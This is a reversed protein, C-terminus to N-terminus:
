QNHRSGPVYKERDVFTQEMTNVSSGASYSSSVVNFSFGPLVTFDTPAPTRSYV